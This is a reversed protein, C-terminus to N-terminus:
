ATTKLYELAAEALASAKAPDRAYLACYCRACSCHPSKPEQMANLTQRAQKQLERDPSNILTFAFYLGRIVESRERRLEERRELDFLDITVRARWYAHTASDPSVPLPMVGDFRILNEPDADIDSLPYLLYPREASLAAPDNANPIRSGAIPFHSKKRERNCILCSALYNLTHYALAFYGDPFDGGCPFPADQWDEVGRKPRFHEMDSETKGSNPGGIKRECYACKYHQLRRYVEKIENWFSDPPKFYGGSAVFRATRKAARSLWTRKQARIRQELESLTIPYRIM